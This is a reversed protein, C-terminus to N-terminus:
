FLCLVETMDAYRYKSMASGRLCHPSKVGECIEIMNNFLYKLVHYFIVFYIVQLELFTKGGPAPVRFWDPRKGEPMKGGVRPVVVEVAMNISLRTNCTRFSAPVFFISSYRTLFSNHFKTEFDYRLNSFILLFEFISVVINKDPFSLYPLTRDKYRLVRRSTSAVEDKVENTARM